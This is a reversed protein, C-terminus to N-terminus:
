RTVNQEETWARPRDTTMALTLQVGVQRPEGPRGAIAPLLSGITGTIYDTDTVNRAYVGVSWHPRPRIAINASVLSYSRQQQIRDNLPTFFVTSQSVLDIFLSLVGLHRLATAYELWARGSWEPANSLRRGAVDVRSGDPGVATYRDYRADLWVAHGGVTWGPAPQAQGEVELGRITAAAANAIDVVGPRIPTQVQLDSYDTFYAAANLNVRRGLLSWKGGAEYTWAWEPAFGRGANPASLNFGGGKFGRTASAYALAEHPLQLNLGFRPTWAAATAADRYQFSSLVTGTPAFVGGSNNMTKDERTYRLGVIGSLRSGLPITGQGFAAISTTRVTPNLQSTLGTALLNTATPQRDVDRFLFLGGTWTFGARESAFTVEESIQDHIEHLTSSSLNLETSDSDVIFEYDLKRAAFLSTLVTSPAPRWNFQASGGYQVSRSEAPTSTRVHHLDSPNDVTFGPKVALVKAYFLPVPDRHSFDGTLRFEARDSVLVRLAGRTATVDTGGLPRAPHDLDRVFGDSIGRLVSGSALVRDRVIPGSLNFEARATQLSGVVVRTSVTRENTPLKTILNIAGGVVNRGYLTGQPGRLVEVRALDLFDGLVSAPRALYVGDLYVASSPESGAFIANSGIGRITLQAFGTNQSFTVSPVLGALDAVSHAERRELQEGSVVSLALPVTQLDREGTRDATVIVQELIQISLTLSVDATQGNVVRVRRTSPAFGELTATIVYEGDPVPALVFGGDDDTRADLEPVGRVTISVDALPNGALDQVRGAVRGVGQAELGAQLLVTVLLGAATTRAVISVSLSTKTMGESSSSHSRRLHETSTRAFRIWWSLGADVKLV